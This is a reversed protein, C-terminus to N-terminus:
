GELAKDLFLCLPNLVKMGSVIKDIVKESELEKDSLKSAAVWGKFKLYEIAPNSSDYGKPNSKLKEEATLEGFVTKFPKGEVIKKFEDFSYDIEQRIKKVQDGEPMYIGGGFFSEGPMIHIYYGSFNNSKKGGPNFYAGMNSKYPAKNLSFRVDRHQRFVCEKATFQGIRPEFQSIGKIIKEVFKLHEEKAENYFNRNAEFWERNNNEKLQSLFNLTTQLKM